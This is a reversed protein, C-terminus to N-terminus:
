RRRLMLVAGCLLALASPEPIIRIIRHEKVFSIYLAGDPGFQLGGVRRLPDEFGTGIVTGSGNSSIRLLEGSDADITYLDDGWIAGGPGFTIPVGRSTALGSFFSPDVLAGASDYIRIVGDKGEIFIRNLDDVAIGPGFVGTSFLLAPTGTGTYTYVEGDDDAILLRGTQDFRLTNPNEIAALPGFLTAFSEDPRVAHLFGGSLNPLGGAVLISGPTGSITGLADYLVADPDYLIPGFETVPLGGVGIRHIKVPDTGGGSYFPDHGAYMVGGPEFTMEVPGDLTAYTQVVYGPVVQAPAAAALLLLLSGVVISRVM